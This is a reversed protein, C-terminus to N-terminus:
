KHVDKKFVIQVEGPGIAPLLRGVTQCWLSDILVAAPRFSALSSKSLFPQLVRMLPGGSTNTRVLSGETRLVAHIEDIRIRYAPPYAKTQKELTGKLRSWTPRRVQEHMLLLGGPRLAKVLERLLKLSNEFYMLVGLCLVVDASGRRFCISELEAHVFQGQPMNKMAKELAAFSSDLGIYIYRYQEQPVLTSVRAATGCGVDIVTKDTLSAFAYSFLNKRWADLRWWDSAPSYPESEEHYLNDWQRVIVSDREPKRPYLAISGRVEIKRGCQECRLGGGDEIWDSQQCIDCGLVDPWTAAQVKQIEM